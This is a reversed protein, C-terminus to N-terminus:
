WVAIPRPHPYARLVRDKTVLRAGTEIATAYILRDAPDRPFSAALGVATAAIAPTAAISRVLRSLDTLWTAIPVSVLIRENRVLWALEYWSIDAILLEDAGEITRTATSSLRDPEASWWHLVHSDLVVKTVAREM